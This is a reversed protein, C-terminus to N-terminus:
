GTLDLTRCRALASVDPVDRIGDLRPDHVFRLRDACGDFRLKAIAAIAEPRRGLAVLAYAFDPSRRGRAHLTAIIRRAQTLDGSRAYVTAILLPVAEYDPDSRPVRRFTALAAAYDHRAAYAIGLSQLAKARSPNLELTRKGYVIADDYRGVLYYADTLWANTATSAPNLVAATELEQVAGAPDANELHVCGLWLHAPADAPDLAVARTLEALATRPRRGYYAILGLATHAAPSRDNLLRAHAALHSAEALYSAMSRRGPDYDGTLMLAEALAAYGVPSRPDSAIVREFALRSRRIGDHTRLDLEYWGLRANEAGTRSLDDAARHIGGHLAGALSGTVTALVLAITAGIWWRNPRPRPVPAPAPEAVAPEGRPSVFRYGCKPVTVIAHRYREDCGGLTKRLLYVHQSLNAEEVSSGSWVGELLEDKSVLSGAHDVLYALCAVSRPGLALPVGRHSVVLRARDIAFPGISSKQSLGTGPEPRM